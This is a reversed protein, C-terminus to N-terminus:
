NRSKRDRTHRQVEEDPPNAHTVKKRKKTTKTSLAQANIEESTATRAEVIHLQKLRTKELNDIQTQLTELLASDVSSLLSTVSTYAGDSTRKIICVIFSEKAKLLGRASEQSNQPLFLFKLVGREDCLDILESEALGLRVKIYKMLLVTPCNTNVLFQNNDGHKIYIFM